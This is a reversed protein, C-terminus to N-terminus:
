IAKSQTRVSVAPGSHTAHIARNPAEHGIRAHQVAPAEHLRHPCPMCSPTGLTGLTPGM